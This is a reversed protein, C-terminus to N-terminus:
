TKWRITDFEVFIVSSSCFIDNSLASISVSLLIQVETFKL